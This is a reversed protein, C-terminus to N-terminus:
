NVYIFENSAFLIQCFAQWALRKRKQPDPERATAATEYRGLFSIASSVENSSPTRDFAKLYAEAVRERDNPGSRALLADALFGSQDLVFSSNMVFLAQPAVTTSSRKANVISPDGFDFAQFMDFLANRIIPLYLARRYSAYRAQNASQDNTVYGRNGLTLLTGGMTKDLKGSVSLVSDRFEEAELRRRNARWILRNEPDIQFSKPDDVWAMQYASSLMILRHLRKISWPVPNSSPRHVISSPPDKITWRGDDMTPGVFESALWDLLEPHTPREGLLGWNDPTRVLGETFHGQWIRNVAVRSTLPNKPDALWKALELRGSEKPGIHELPESSLVTVFHRPVEDGLTQTNGRIHVRCNEIHGDEVAMVESIPPLAAEAAKLADEAKKVSVKATDSYFMEPTKPIPLNARADSLAARASELDKFQGIKLREEWYKILEGRVHESKAIEKASKSDPHKWYEWALPLYADLDKKLKERVDENALEVAMNHATQLEKIKPEMAQRRAQLEPSALHRELWKAVGGINEMTKTSKFIGALAYYDQTAIPDFKHDHCRACSVTLGLFAKSTVEIQEDVIDMVLKPKDPEALVKPGLCLFGTATLRENRKSDSASPMLDGAIQEFVFENYPKDKNFSNVVYDRYRWANGFALNEDLGNSDAYRVADLWHRGWREGYQPSSLLRDVVKAFADRSHDAYFERVEEPTPPLGILDFYARRILTRKGAPPAPKLGKSELKALIFADIPTTVWGSNKVKPVTPRTVPQFSWFKRDADTIKMGANRVLSKTKAGDDKSAASPWPAGMKVWATLVAVEANSLKGNPPMKIKGDFRVARILASRDPDGAALVRGNGRGKQIAEPSDLRLGGRQEKVGHCSFCKEALLPRVKSEFFTSQEPAVAAPKGDDALTRSLVWPSAVVGLLIIKRFSALETLNRFSGM